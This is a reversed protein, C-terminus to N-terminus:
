INEPPTDEFKGDGAPKPKLIETFNLGNGQYSDWEGARRYPCYSREGSCHPLFSLHSFLLIGAWLTSETSPQNQRCRSRLM